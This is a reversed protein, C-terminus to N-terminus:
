LITQYPVLKYHEGNVIITLLFYVFALWCAVVRVIIMDSFVFREVLFPVIIMISITFYGTLRYFLKPDISPLLFQLIVLVVALYWLNLAIVVRGDYRQRWLISLFIVFLPIVAISVLSVGTQTVGAKTLYTLSLGTLGYLGAFLEFYEAFFVIPILVLLYNILKPKIRLVWYLPLLVIATKHFMSALIVMIIYRFPSKSLIFKLSYAFIAIALFNRIANFSALYFVPLLTFLYLSLAPDPSLDRAFRYFLTITIVSSVFFVVFAVHEPSSLFLGVSRILIIFGPEFHWSYGNLVGEILDIYNLYDIGVNYRLGSFAILLFVLLLLIVRSFATRYASGMLFMM